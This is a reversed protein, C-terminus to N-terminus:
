STRKGCLCPRPPTVDRSTRTIFHPLDTNAPVLTIAEDKRPTCVIVEHLIDRSMANHPVYRVRWHM